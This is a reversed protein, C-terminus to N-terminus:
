DYEPIEEVINEWGGHSKVWPAFREMYKEAYGRMRQREGTATLVRRSAEMTIAVKRLTPSAPLPASSSTPSSSSSAQVEVEVVTQSAYTDLLKAFSPYSMRDLSKRLFPNATIKDNLLDGEKCLIQVLQQVIANKDPETTSEAPPPPIVPPLKVSKSKRAIRHLTSAVENYFEPSHSPSLQPDTSPAAPESPVPLTVPRQPEKTKNKPRFISALSQLKRKSKKKKKKEGDGGEEESFSSSSGDEALSKQLIDPFSIPQDSQPKDTKRELTGAKNKQQEETRISRPRLRRKILNKISHKKEEAASIAEDVSDWGNDAKEKKPTKPSKAAASFKKPDLYSGGVRGPREDPPVTLAKRVFSRLVQRTEEKAELLSVSPSPSSPRAGGDSM